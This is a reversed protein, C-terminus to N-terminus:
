YGPNIWGRGPSAARQTTTELKFHLPCTVWLNREMGTDNSELSSVLRAAFSDLIKCNALEKRETKRHQQSTGAPDADTQRNRCSRLLLRKDLELGAGRRPVNGRLQLLRSNDAAARRKQQPM